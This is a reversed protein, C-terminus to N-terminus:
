PYFHGWNYFPSPAGYPDDAFWYEGLPLKQVRQDGMLFHNSGEDALKRPRSEALPAPAQPVLGERRHVWV